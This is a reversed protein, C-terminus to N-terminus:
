GCGLFIPISRSGMRDNLQGRILLMEQLSIQRDPSLFAHRARLRRGRDGDSLMAALRFHNISVKQKERKRDSRHMLSFSIVTRGVIQSHSMSLELSNSKEKLPDAESGTSLQGNLWPLGRFHLTICSKWASPKGVEDIGRGIM